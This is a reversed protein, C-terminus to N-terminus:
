SLRGKTVKRLMRSVKAPKVYDAGMGGLLPLVRDFTTANTVLKDFAATVRKTPTFPAYSLVEIVSLSGDAMPELLVKKGAVVAGAMTFAPMSKDKKVTRTRKPASRRRTGKKKKKVMNMAGQRLV